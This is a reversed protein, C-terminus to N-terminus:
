QHTRVIGDMWLTGRIIRKYEMSMSIFTMRFHHSLRNAIYMNIASPSLPNMRQM